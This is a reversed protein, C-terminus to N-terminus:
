KKLFRFAHKWENNKFAYTIWLMAFAELWYANEIGGLDVTSNWGWELALDNVWKKADQHDGVILLDPTGEQRKAEIMIHAGVTNFAKVVKAEPIHKQIQEGLSHGVTAAFKPPVGESFDLPNTVDVVIKRGFNEKGAMDVANITALGHSTLFIVEGFAAADHFTGLKVDPNKSLWETFPPNGYADPKSRGITDAVNRTGIMVEYKSQCLKAALTQGVGGTGLIGIKMM